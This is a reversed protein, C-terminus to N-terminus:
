VYVLKKSIKTNIEGTTTGVRRGDDLEFQFEVLGAAVKRDFEESTVYEPDDKQHISAELRGSEVLGGDIIRFLQEPKEVWELGMTASWKKVLSAIESELKSILEMLQDNAMAAWSMRGVEPLTSLKWSRRPNIIKDKDGKPPERHAVEILGLSKAKKIARDLQNSKIHYDIRDSQYKAVMNEPVQPCLWDWALLYNEFKGDEDNKFVGTIEYDGTLGGSIISGVTCTTHHYRDNGLDGTQSDYPFRIYVGDFESTVGPTAFMSTAKRSGDEYFSKVQRNQDDANVRLARYGVLVVYGVCAAVAEILSEFRKTRM